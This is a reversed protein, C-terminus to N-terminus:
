HDHGLTQVFLLNGSFAKVCVYINLLLDACLTSNNWDTNFIVLKHYLLWKETLRRIM